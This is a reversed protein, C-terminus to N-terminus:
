IKISLLLLGHMGLGVSAGGGQDSFLPSFLLLVLACGRLHDLLDLPIEPRTSEADGEALDWDIMSVHADIHNPSKREDSAIFTQNRRM